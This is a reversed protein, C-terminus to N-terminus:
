RMCREALSRADTQAVTANGGNAAGSAGRAAAATVPQTKIDFTASLM